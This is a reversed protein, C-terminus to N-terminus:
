FLGEHDFRGKPIISLVDHKEILKQKGLRHHRVQHRVEQTQDGFQFARIVVIEGEYLVFKPLNLGWFPNEAIIQELTDYKEIVNVNNKRRNYHFKINSLLNRVNIIQYGVQKHNLLLEM